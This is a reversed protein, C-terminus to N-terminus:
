ASVGHVYQGMRHDHNTDGLHVKAAIMMRIDAETPALISLGSSM